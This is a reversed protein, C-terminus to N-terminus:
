LSSFKIILVSRYAVLSYVTIVIGNEYSANQAFYSTFISKVSQSEILILKRLIIFQYKINVNAISFMNVFM